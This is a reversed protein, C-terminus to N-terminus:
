EAIREVVMVVLESLDTGTVDIEKESGDHYEVFVVEYDGRDIFGVSKVEANIAKVLDALERIVVEARKAKEKTFPMEMEGKM